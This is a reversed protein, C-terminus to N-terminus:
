CHCSCLNVLWSALLIHVVYIHTHVHARTHTYARIAKSIHLRRSPWTTTAKKRPIMAQFISWAKKGSVMRYFLNLGKNGPVAMRLTKRLFVYLCMYTLYGQYIKFQVLLSKRPRGRIFFFMYIHVYCLYSQVM